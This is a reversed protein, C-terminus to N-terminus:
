MVHVYIGVELRHLHTLVMFNLLLTNNKESKISRMDVMVPSKALIKLNNKAKVGM